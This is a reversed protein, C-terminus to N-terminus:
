TFDVRQRPHRVVGRTGFARRGGRAALAGGAIAASIAQVVFEPCTEPNRTKSRQKSKSVNSSLQYHILPKGGSWRCSSTRSTCRAPVHEAGERCSEDTRRLNWSRNEKKMERQVVIHRSIARRCETVEYGSEPAVLVPEQVLCEAHNSGSFM